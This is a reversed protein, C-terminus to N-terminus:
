KFFQMPSIGGGTTGSETVAVAAAVDNGTLDAREEDATSVTARNKLRALEKRAGEPCNLAHDAFDFGWYRYANKIGRQQGWAPAHDVEKFLDHAYDGYARAWRRVMENTLTRVVNPNIVVNTSLKFSVTYDTRVSTGNDGFFKLLSNLLEEKDDNATVEFEAAIKDLVKEAESLPMVSELPTEAVRPKTGPKIKRVKTGTASSSSSTDGPLVM